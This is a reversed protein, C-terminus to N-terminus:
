HQKTTEADIHKEVEITFNKEKRKKKQSLM